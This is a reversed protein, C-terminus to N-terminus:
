CFQKLFSYCVTLDIEYPWVHTQSDGSARQIQMRELDIIFLGLYPVWIVVCRSRRCFWELRVELDTWNKCELRHHALGADEVLKRVDFSRALVWSAEGDDCGGNGRGKDNEAHVWIAVEMGADEKQLLALRGDEATALMLMKKTSVSFYSMMCQEPLRTTWVSCTSLDVAVIHTITCDWLELPRQEKGFTKYCLWHIAGQCEIATVSHRVVNPMVVDVPNPRMVPGWAGIDSSYNQLALVGNCEIEVALVQFSNASPNLEDGRVSHLFYAETSIEDFRPMTAHFGTLPNYVSIEELIGRCVLLLGESCALQAYLEPQGDASAAPVFSPTPLDDSWHQGASPVWSSRACFRLTSPYIERYHFGLLLRHDAQREPHSRVQCANNIVALRWYKSVAACRVISRPDLHFFVQLLVDTTLPCPPMLAM